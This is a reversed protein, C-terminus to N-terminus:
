RNTQGRIPTDAYKTLLDTLDDYSTASAVPLVPQRVKYMDNTKYSSCGNQTIRRQLLPVRRVCETANRRTRRRRVRPRYAYGLQSVPLLIMGADSTRFGVNAFDYVLYAAGGIATKWATSCTRRSSNFGATKEFFIAHRNRGSSASSRIPSSPWSTANADTLGDGFEM